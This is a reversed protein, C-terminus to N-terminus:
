KSKYFAKAGIGSIVRFINMAMGWSEIEIIINPNNIINIVIENKLRMVISAESLESYNASGSPQYIFPYLAYSYIYTGRDFHNEPKIEYTTINTFYSEKMKNVRVVDDMTMYAYDFITNMTTLNNEIDRVNYGYTTWNIKDENNMTTPDYIKVSWVIYKIPDGINLNFSITPENDNLYNILEDMNYQKLKELLNNTIAGDITFIDNRTLRIKNNYNFDEILYETKSRSMRQRDEKDLYFYQCSLKLKLKPKNEYYTDNDRILINDLDNIKITYLKHSYILSILPMSNGVDKTFWRYIPITLSNIYRDKKSSMTYMEHTNGIMIDHGRKKNIPTYMRNIFSMLSPTHTCYPQGDILLCQKDFLANGLEKVWAYKVPEKMILDLLRTELKTNIMDEGTETKMYFIIDKNIDLIQQFSYEVGTDTTYIIKNMNTDNHYKSVNLYQEINSKTLENFLLKFKNINSIIKDNKNILFIIKKLENLNILEKTEDIFKLLIQDCIFYAIYSIDYFLINNDNTYFSNFKNNYIYESTIRKEGSDDFLLSHLIEYVNKMDNYNFRESLCLKLYFDHLCFSSFPNFDNTINDDYSKSIDKDKVHTLINLISGNMNINYIADMVGKIKSNIWYNKSNDVIEIMINKYTESIIQTNYDIYKIHTHQNYYTNINESTEFDYSPKLRVNHETNNNYLLANDDNFLGLIYKTNKYRTLSLNFLNIYDNIFSDILTKKSNINCLRYIDFGNIGNYSEIPPNTETLTNDVNKITELIRNNIDTQQYPYQNLENYYINVDDTIQTKIFDFIKHMNNGLENKFYDNSLLTNNYLNNYQQIFKKQTQFWISSIADCYKPENIVNNILINVPKTENLLGLLNFNNDQYSIADPLENHAIFCNIINSLLNNLQQIAYIKNENQILLTNIFQEIIKKFYVYYTQSLWEIPLYVKDKLELNNDTITVTDDNNIVINSYKYFFNDPKLSCLSIFNEPNYKSVITTIYEDDMIYYNEDNTEDKCLITADIIRLYLEKKILKKIENTSIQSADNEDRYDIEIMFNNYDDDTAGIQTFIDYVYLKYTDYLLKPIDKVVRFPIYNWYAVKGYINTNLLPRSSGQIVNEYTEYNDNTQTFLIMNWLSLYNTYSDFYNHSLYNQCESIFLKFQYQITKNYFNYVPINNPILFSTYNCISSINDQIMNSLNSLISVFPNADNEKIFSIIYHNKNDRKANYLVSINKLLQNMNYKINYEINLKLSSNLKNIQAQSIIKNNTKDVTIMNLSNIYIKYADTDIYNSWQVPIYDFYKILINQISVLSKLKNLFYVKTNINLDILTYPENYTDITHYFLLTDDIYLNDPNMLSVNTFISSNITCYESNFLNTSNEIPNIKIRIINNLYTIFNIYRIDDSRLLKYRIIISRDIETPTFERQLNHLDHLDNDFIPKSLFSDIKNIAQDPITGAYANYILTDYSYNLLLGILLGYYLMISKLQKSYFQKIKSQIVYICDKPLYSLLPENTYENIYHTLLYYMLTFKLNTTSNLQIKLKQITNENNGYTDDFLNNLQETIKNIIFTNDALIVLANTSINYTNISQIINSNILEILINNYDELSVFENENSNYNWIINYEKLVNTIFKFTPNYRKLNIVPLDVLIYMKHLLDGDNKIEFEVNSGFDFENKDSINESNHISFNLNRRYIKKFQTIDANSDLYKNEHNKAVLQLLTGKLKM